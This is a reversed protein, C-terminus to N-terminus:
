LRRSRRRRRRRQRISDGAHQRVSIRESARAECERSHVPSRSDSQSPSSSSSPSLAFLRSVTLLCDHYHTLSLPLSLVTGPHAECFYSPSGGIGDYAPLPPLAASPHPFITPSNARLEFSVQRRTSGARTKTTTKAGGNVESAVPVPPPLALPVDESVTVCGGSTEKVEVAVVVAESSSTVSTTTLGDVDRGGAIACEVCARTDGTTGGVDEFAPLVASLTNADMEFDQSLQLDWRNTCSARRIVLEASGHATVQITLISRKYVWSRAHVVTREDSDADLRGSRRTPAPPLSRSFAHSMLFDIAAEVLLSHRQRELQQLRPLAVSALVGRDVPACKFIVYSLLRFALYALQKSKAYELGVLLLEVVAEYCRANLSPLAYVVNAVMELTAGYGDARFDGDPTTFCVRASAFIVDVAAAVDTPTRVALLSLVNTTVFLLAFEADYLARLSQALRKRAACEAPSPTTSSLTSSTPLVHTFLNGHSGTTTQFRSLMRSTFGFHPPSAPKGVSDRSLSQDSLRTAVYGSSVRDPCLGGSDYQAGVGGLAYDSGVDDRVVNRTSRSTALRGSETSSTTAVLLDKEAVALPMGLTGVLCAILHHRATANLETAYGTLLALLELGMTMFRTKCLVVLTDRVSTKFGVGPDGAVRSRQQQTYRLTDAEAHRRSLLEWANARSVPADNDRRGNTKAPRKWTADDNDDDNDDDTLRALEDPIAARGFARYDISSVLKLTMDSLDVDTLVVRNELMRRIGHVAMRFLDAHTETSVLTLMARLARAVPVCAGTQASHVARRAVYLFRSARRTTTTGGGDDTTWVLRFSDADAECVQLLCALAIRRVDPQRHTEVVRAVLEYLRLSRAHPLHHFSAAFLAVIGNAAHVQADEYLALTVANTLVDLLADFFRASELGRAADTVLELGRRRVDAHHDDFVHALTPLLVDDIVRDECVHRSLQLTSRLVDLAELRVAGLMAGNTFFSLMADSLTQLWHADHAPHAAAARHRLLCLTSRENLYQLYDELVDFFAETDGAFQGHAVLDEVVSLTDLLERPIRTQHISVAVQVHPQLPESQPHPAVQPYTMMSPVSSYSEGDDSDAADDALSLWPRLARFMRLIIDWEVLLRKDAASSLSLSLKADVDPKAAAGFKKILRQFALIVEFIVVGNNCALVRELALLVPAWKVDELQGVRQSGWCSMGVFFVAGRLVWQSNTGNGGSFPTELLSVLGRLVQFGAAGNLLLKMVSWTGYGDANVMCCLTRLSAATSAAYELGHSALVHFFGLVRKCCDVDGRAWAADARACLVSTIAVVTESDLGSPSRRLITQVLGVLDRQEDSQELLRLLLWGLEVRFPEVRRGDLTLVRLMKQRLTFDGPPAAELLAFAKRRLTAGLQASLLGLSLTAAELALARVDPNRHATLDALCEFLLELEADSLALVTSSAVRAAHPRLLLLAREVDRVYLREDARLRQRSCLRQLALLLEDVPAPLDSNEM